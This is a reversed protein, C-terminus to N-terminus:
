IHILSLEDPKDIFRLSKKFPFLVCKSLEQWDLGLLIDHRTNPIVLFSMTGTSECVRLEIPKTM